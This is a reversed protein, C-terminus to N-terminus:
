RAFNFETFDSMKLSTKIKFFNQPVNKSKLYHFYLYVLFDEQTFALPMGGAAYCTSAIGPPPVGDWTQPPNGWGLDPPTGQGMDLPPVGTLDLPPPVGDWTPPPPVGDQGPPPYGLYGWGTWVQSPTGGRSWVQSPTGGRGRGSMPHPVGGWVQSPYGGRGGGLHPSVFLSFVTGEGM